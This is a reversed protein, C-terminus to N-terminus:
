AMKFITSANVLWLRIVTAGIFNIWLMSVSETKVTLWRTLTNQIRVEKTVMEFHKYHFVNLLCQFGVEVFLLLFHFTDGSQKGWFIHKKKKWSFLATNSM